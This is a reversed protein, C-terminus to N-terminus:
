HLQLRAVDFFAMLFMTSSALAALATKEPDKRVWLLFVLCVLGLFVMQIAQWHLQHWRSVVVNIAFTLQLLVLLWVASQNKL